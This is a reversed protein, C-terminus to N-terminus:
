SSSSIILTLKACFFLFSVLTSLESCVHPFMEPFHFDANGPLHVIKATWFIWYRQETRLESLLIREVVAFVFIFNSWELLKEAKDGAMGSLKAASEFRYSQVWRSFANFDLTHPRLRSIWFKNSSLMKLLVSFIKEKKASILLVHRELSLHPYCSEQQFFIFVSIFM